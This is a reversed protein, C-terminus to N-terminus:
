PGTSSLRVLDGVTPGYMSAYTQRDIRHADIHKGTESQTELAHHCGEEKIRRLINDAMSIDIRGPAISSGGRISKLGGIESLTVTKTDGPEFRVSTGAPIDFHFGYAKSSRLRSFSKNRHFSFALGGTGTLM